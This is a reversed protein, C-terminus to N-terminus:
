LKLVARVDAESNIVTENLNMDFAYDGNMKQIREFYATPLIALKNETTVLWLLNDSDKNYQINKAIDKLYFRRVTNQSKDTHYVMTNQYNNFHQDLFTGDIQALYPPRPRDCNWTGFRSIKFKNLVTRKVIEDTAYSDHGQAKLAAIRESFDKNALEKELAIREEIEQKKTALAKEAAAKKTQYAVLQTEFQQLAQDYDQGVLVPKVKLTATKEGKALNLTFSEDSAKELDYTEWVTASFDDFADITSLVQWITGKYNKAGLDAGKFELEMTMSNGDYQEPKEPKTPFSFQRELQAIERKRKQELEREKVQETKVVTLYQINGEYTTDYTVTGTFNPDDPDGIVKVHPEYARVIDGMSNREIILEIEEPAKSKPAIEIKDKGELSWERKEEDLYYINFEPPTDGAFAIKSKLEIDIPKEPLMQLREGDQTAYVEIMGASELVGAKGDIEIEMPIGSLFFDVYDHYEKLHIEVEGEILAGYSNAFASRPVVMKSGSAFKYVGGENANVIITEGKEALEKMPPNVYPQTALYAITTNKGSIGEQFLNGFALIGILLTAAIGGIWYYAKKSAVKLQKQPPPATEMRKMLADFDKHKEIDTKKLPPQNIKFNYNNEM